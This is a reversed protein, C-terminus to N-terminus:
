YALRTVGHSDGGTDGSGNVKIVSGNPTSSGRTFRVSM